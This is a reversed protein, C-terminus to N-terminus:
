QQESQEEQFMAGQTLVEFASAPPTQIPELEPTNTIRLTHPNWGMEHGEAVGAPEGSRTKLVQAHITWRYEEAVAGGAKQIALDNTRRYLGILHDSEAEGAYRTDTFRLPQGHRGELVERKLQHAVLIGVEQAKALTRLEVYKRKVAEVNESNPSMLDLYDIMVLQPRQAFQHEYEEIAKSVVEASPAGVGMMGLRPVREELTKRVRRALDDDGGKIRRELTRFEEGEAMAFIRPAVLILPMEISAFLVNIDPNNLAVNALFTTKGTNSGAALTAVEGPAVGGQLVADLWEYGLGIRAQPNRAFEVYEDGIEGPRRVLTHRQRYMGELDMGEIEERRAVLRGVDASDLTAV